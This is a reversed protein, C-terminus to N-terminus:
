WDTPRLSRCGRSSSTTQSYRRMALYYTGQLVSSCTVKHNCMDHYVKHNCMDHYVKHNCMDHYVKHNCMHCVKHNCMHYVKHNCMNHYMKHNCMDHYVKHNCMDHYVYLVPQSYKRMTLYYSLDGTIMSSCTM